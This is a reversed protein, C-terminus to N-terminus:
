LPQFGVYKINCTMDGCLFLFLDAPTEVQLIVRFCGKLTDIAYIQVMHSLVYNCLVYRWCFVNGLIIMFCWLCFLMFQSIYEVAILIFLICSHVYVYLFEYVHM